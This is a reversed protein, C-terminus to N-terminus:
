ETRGKTDASTARRLLREAALAVPRDIMRGDLSCAGGGSSKWAALVVKARMVEEPTSSFATNIAAVQKPHIALKASLGLARSASAERALAKEDALALHPVDWAPVGAAVAAQVIRSRSFLLPEWSFDAGLDAALDAGGLALGAVAPHSGIAAASELGKATEILAIVPVPTDSDPLHALLLDIEWVSEVKPLMIASLRASSTRLALMDHLGAATTAHNIRVMVPIGSPIDLAMVTSRAADKDSAGVGDELDLIVCDAGSALAKDLSTLRTAPTFLATRVYHFPSWITSTKM